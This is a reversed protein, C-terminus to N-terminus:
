LAPNLGSNAPDSFDLTGGGTNGNGPAPAAPAAIPGGYGMPRSNSSALTQTSRLMARQRASEGDSIINQPCSGRSAM